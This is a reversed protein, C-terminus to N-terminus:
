ASVGAGYGRKRSASLSLLLQPMARLGRSDIMLYRTLRGQYIWAPSVCVMCDEKTHGGLFDTLVALHM